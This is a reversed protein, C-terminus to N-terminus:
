PCKIGKRQRKEEYMRSDAQRLLCQTDVGEDPYLCIGMSFSICLPGAQSDFEIYGDRGAKLEQIYGQLEAQSGCGYILM